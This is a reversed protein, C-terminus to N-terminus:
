ENEDDDKKKRKAARTGEVPPEGLSSVDVDKQKVPVKTVTVKRSDKRLAKSSKGKSKEKKTEVIGVRTSFRRDQIKTM